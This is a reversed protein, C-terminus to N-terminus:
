LRTSITRKCIFMALGGGFLFEKLNLVDGEVKQGGGQRQNVVMLSLTAQM